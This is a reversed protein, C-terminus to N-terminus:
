EIPTVLHYQNGRHIVCQGCRHSVSCIQKKSKHNSFILDSGLLDNTYLCLNLTLDSDDTHGVCVHNQEECAAISLISAEHLYFKYLNFWSKM